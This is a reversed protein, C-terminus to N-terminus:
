WNVNKWLQKRGREIYMYTINKGSDNSIQQLHWFEKGRSSHKVTNKDSLNGQSIFSKSKEPLKIKESKVAKNLYLKYVMGNIKSQMKIGEKRESATAPVTSCRASRITEKPASLAAKHFWSVPINYRCVISKRGFLKPESHGVRCHSVSVKLLLSFKQGIKHIYSYFKNSSKFVWTTM